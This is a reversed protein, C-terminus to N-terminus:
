LRRLLRKFLKIDILYSIVATILIIILDALVVYPINYNWKIM